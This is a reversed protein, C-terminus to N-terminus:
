GGYNTLFAGAFNTSFESLLEHEDESVNPWVVVVHLPRETIQRVAEFPTDSQSAERVFDTRRLSGIFMDLIGSEIGPSQGPLYVASVGLKGHCYFTGLGVGEAITMGIEIHDLRGGLSTRFVPGHAALLDSCVSLWRPSLDKVEWRGVGLLEGAPAFPAVYYHDHARAKM